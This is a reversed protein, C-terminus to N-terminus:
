LDFQAIRGEPRTLHNILRTLGDRLSVSSKWGAGRLKSTDAVLDSFPDLEPSPALEVLGPRGMIESITEAMKRVTITEGTGVDVAGSLGHEVISLLARAVDDIYIFDKASEPANLTVRQGRAFKQISTSCLRAPHEGVGYPYFIRCWSAEVNRKAAEVELARRLADKCLAYASDRASSTAGKNELAGSIRSEICTGLAVVRGLGQEMVQAFFQRSWELLDYNLPSNLYVGPEAVWASHVCVDPQFARIEGWPLDSLTGHLVTLGHRALGTSMRKTRDLAAVSHGNALALQLFASGIFGTAGTLFIRM